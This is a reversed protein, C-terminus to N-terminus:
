GKVSGALIGNVFHKQLVLFVVLLPVMAVASAALLEGWVTAFDATITKGTINAALASLVVQLTQMRESSTVIVPWVFDNYINMTTLVALGALGPRIVPVVVRWFIGFEGCGDIRAADLLENPVAAITQRMWFIAFADIAGPLILGQYTNVWGLVKMQLLLPIILVVIPLMLTALVAGFLVGKGRFDYKAFAYGALPAFFMTLGGKVVLVIATNAFGTWIPVDRFMKAFNDLTLEAPDFALPRSVIQGAPKFASLVAWLVPVLFALTLVAVFAWTLWSPARDISTRRRPRAAPAAARAATLTDTAM